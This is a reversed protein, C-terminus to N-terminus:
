ERVARQAFEDYQHVDRKGYSWRWRVLGHVVRQFKRHSDVQPTKFFGCCLWGQRRYNQRQQGLKFYKGQFAADNAGIAFSLKALQEATLIVYPSLKTGSGCAFSKATTGDWANGPEGVCDEDLEEKASSTKGGKSSSSSGKKASSSLELVDDDYSDTTQSCGGLMALIGLFLVCKFRM